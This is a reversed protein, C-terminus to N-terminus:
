WCGALHSCGTHRACTRVGSTTSFRRFVAPNASGSSPKSIRSATISSGFVTARWGNRAPATGHMRLGKLRGLQSVAEGVGGSAGQILVADGERVRGHKELVSLATLYDLPITAAVSPALGDPVSMLLWSPLVVYESCAGTKPLAAAVRTGPSLSGEGRSDVVEGVLEYGPTFPVKRQLLYEGVRAM